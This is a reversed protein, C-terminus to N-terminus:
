SHRYLFFLKNVIVIGQSYAPTRAGKEACITAVQMNHRSDLSDTSNVSLLM